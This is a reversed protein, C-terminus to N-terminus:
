RITFYMRSANPIISFRKLLFLLNELMGEILEQKDDGNYGLATFYSDLYYQEKFTFHQGRSSPVVYRYPLGILTGNDDPTYFELQPWEQKIHELAKTISKVQAMYQQKSLESFQIDM